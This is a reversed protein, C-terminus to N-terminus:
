VLMLLFKLCNIIKLKSWDDIPYKKVEGGFGEKLYVWLCGWEGLEEKYYSGNERYNKM